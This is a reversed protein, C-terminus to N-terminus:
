HYHTRPTPPPSPPHPSHPPPPPCPATRDGPGVAREHEERGEHVAPRGAGPMPGTELAGSEMRSSADAGSVSTHMPGLLMDLEEPTIAGQQASRISSGAPTVSCIRGDSAHPRASGGVGGHIRPRENPPASQAPGRKPVHPHDARDSFDEVLRLRPPTPQPGRAGGGALHQAMTEAWGSVGPVVTPSLDRPPPPPVPAKWSEIDHATVARLTRSPGGHDPGHYCWVKVRHAYRPLLECVDALERLHGIEPECLIVLVGRAGAREGPSGAWRTALAIVRYPDHCLHVEAGHARLSSLLATDPPRQSSAWVIVRPPVKNPVPGHGSGGGVAGEGGEAGGRAQSRIAQMVTRHAADSSGSTDLPHDRPEAGPGLTM